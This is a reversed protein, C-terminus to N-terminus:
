ALLRHLLIVQFISVIYQMLQSSSCIFHIIFIRLKRSIQVHKYSALSDAVQAQVRRTVATWSPVFLQYGSISRCWGHVLLLAANFCQVVDLLSSCRNLNELDNQTM